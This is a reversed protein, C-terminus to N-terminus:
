RIGLLTVEFKTYSNAPLVIAGNQDRQDQDGYALTPPVYMIITGGPKLLPLIKQWAVILTGLVLPTGAPDSFNDFTSGSGLIYANYTVVVSNCLSSPGAGTGPNQITYFVGSPHQTATISQSTLFTQISTIEAASAVTGSETFSCEDKVCSSLLFPVAFFALFMKKM